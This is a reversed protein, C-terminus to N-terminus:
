RGNNAWQRMRESEELKKQRLKGVFLGDEQYKQRVRRVSEMVPTTKNLMLSKFTEYGEPTMMEKLNHYENMYLLWLKKDCDRTMPYKSLIVGVREKITKVDDLM